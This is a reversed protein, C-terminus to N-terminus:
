PAIRSAIDSWGGQGKAGVAAVRFWYRKGSELGDATMRSKTVAGQLEWAATPPATLSREALYSSAGDISNWSLDLEGDNDGTTAELGTVVSPVAGASAPAKVDMGAGNIVAEKGSAINEVYSALSTLLGRLNDAQENALVTKAKSDMRAQNATNNAKSLADAAGTVSALPPNPTAFDPNGTMASVIQQTLELLEPVPTRSLRLRVKAAM